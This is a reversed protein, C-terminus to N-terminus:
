LNRNRNLNRSNVLEMNPEMDLGYFAFKECLNFFFDQTKVYTTLKEVLFFNTLKM